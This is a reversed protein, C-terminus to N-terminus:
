SHLNQQYINYIFFLYLRILSDGVCFCAQKRFSTWGLKKQVLTCTTFVAVYVQILSTM